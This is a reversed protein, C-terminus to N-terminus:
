RDAPVAALKAVRSKPSADITTLWINGENDVAPLLHVDPRAWSILTVIALGLGPVEKACLLNVGQGGAEYVWLRDFRDWYLRVAERLGERPLDLGEKIYFTQDTFRGDRHVWISDYGGGWITGDRRLALSRTAVKAGEGRLNTWGAATRRSITGRGDTTWLAGDRDVVLDFVHYVPAIGELPNEHTLVGDKLILVGSTGASGTFVAGAPDVAFRNLVSFPIVRWGGQGRGYLAGGDLWLTDDSFSNGSLSPTGSIGTLVNQFGGEGRAYVADTAIIHIRGQADAAVGRLRDDVPVGPYAVEHDVWELRAPCPLEGAAAPATVALGVVLISVHKLMAHEM